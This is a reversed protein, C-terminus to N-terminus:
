PHVRTIHTFNDITKTWSSLLYHKPTLLRVEITRITRQDVARGIVGGCMDRATGGAILVPSREM